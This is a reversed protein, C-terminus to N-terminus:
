RIPQKRMAYLVSKEWVAKFLSGNLFTKGEFIM